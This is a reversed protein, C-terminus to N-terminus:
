DLKMYGTFGVADRGTSFVNLLAKGNDYVLLVYKLLEDQSRVSFEIETASKPLRKEKYYEVVGEFNLGGGGYPVNTARGVFPLHSYLSDGSVHIGYGYDLRRTAMRRPMIYDMNISYYRDDIAKRVNQATLADRVAKDAASKRTTSCAAAIFALLSLFLLKKM